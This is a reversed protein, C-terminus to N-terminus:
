SLQENHYVNLEFWFTSGQGIQSKVGYTAGQHMDLITKVINLGLGTGVAARKHNKDVKYYREWIDNLKSQEIGEGTDSVEIRVRNQKGNVAPIHIQKITVTKDEGIYTLANNILNYVVQSLKLADGYVYIDENADFIIQYETLKTYRTLIERINETLNLVEGNFPITGSQLKSIDLVDNVLTTLRKAEDIIIQVNEPTNENPIDRMVEAYGTIMTLPTRLDHSINAILERQLAEVKSLEKAAYNLTNALEAIERYGSADFDVDYKGQALVKASKNIKVIPSSLNKALLLAMIVALVIMIVTIWLLQVKLTQVTSVVPSISTNLLILINEGSKTTAIKTYIVSEIQNPDDTEGLFFQSKRENFMTREIFTGGNQVTLEYAKALRYSSLEHIICNPLIDIAYIVSGDQTCLTICIQKDNAVKKLVSSLKDSDINDGIDKLSNEIDHIKISRYFTNLMGIQFVWLLSLIVAIFAVFIAFIKWFVSVKEKGKQKKQLLNNWKHTDLTRDDGYFDYGWVNTILMERTLAINKNESMYFLLDYEKPSLDIKEGDVTVIRATYDIALGEFEVKDNSQIQPASRKIVANIRMMLEKPSFPKVVYDDIGLEFGHIKDYEEGRASLMIVPTNCNKRIEKVASFGDLEPMMVDMIIISYLDLNKRCLMVAEMGDAAETVTHGEFEAYKRIIQRIKEEDDVVLLHYM